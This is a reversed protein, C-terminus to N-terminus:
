NKRDTILKKLNELYVELYPQVNCKTQSIDNINVSFVWVIIFLVNGALTTVVVNKLLPTIAIM